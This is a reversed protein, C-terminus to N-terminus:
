CIPIEKLTLYDGIKEGRIYLRWYKVENVTARVIRIDKVLLPEM